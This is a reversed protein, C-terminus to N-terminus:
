SGKLPSLFANPFHQLTYHSANGTVGIIDFRYFYPERLNGIYIDAARVMQRMKAMDVADVPQTHKGSRAKVEVLVINDDKQAIIDIEIRGPLKWNRERIAYGEAMLYEAAIREATKGWDGAEHKKQLKQQQNGENAM